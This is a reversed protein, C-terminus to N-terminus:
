GDANRQGAKIAYVLHAGKWLELGLLAERDASARETAEADDAAIFHRARVIGGAASITLVRYRPMASDYGALPALSLQGRPPGPRAAITSQWVPARGDSTGLSAGHAESSFGATSLFM